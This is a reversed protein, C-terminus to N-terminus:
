MILEGNSGFMFDLVAPGAVTQADGATKGDNTILVYVYGMLGKPMTVTVTAVDGKWTADKSPIFQNGTGTLFTVYYPKSKDFSSPAKFSVTVAKGPTPKATTIALAPFASVPLAPNNSPCSKILGSALTYVQNLDLPVDFATNWANAKQAASGVWASHRAEVTLITGAATLYDKNSIYKAAGTYASTGITELLSSVAIFSKPDTDPFKYECAHTASTGLAGSLFDVHTKEHAAIQEFRSRVFPEYGAKAFSKDSYKALAGAYFANELYELTLAFNLIDVDTPAGRKFLPSPIISATAATIATFLITYKM